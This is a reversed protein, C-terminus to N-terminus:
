PMPSTVPRVWFDTSTTVDVVYRSVAVPGPPVDVLSTVTVTDFSVIGGLTEKVASGVATTAGFSYSCLNDLVSPDVVRVAVALSLMPTIFTSNTRPPLTMAASLVAPSPNLTDILKM